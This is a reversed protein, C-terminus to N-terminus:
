KEKLTLHSIKSTFKSIHLNQLVSILITKISGFQILKSYEECHPQCLVYDKLLKLEDCEMICTHILKLEYNEMLM